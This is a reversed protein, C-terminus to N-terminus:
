FITLSSTNSPTVKNGVLAVNMLWDDLELKRIGVNQIRVLCRLAVFFVAIAFITWAEVAFNNNNTTPAQIQGAM